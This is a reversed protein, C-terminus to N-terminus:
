SHTGAVRLQMATDIDDEDPHDKCFLDSLTWALRLVRVYGRLSIQARDLARDLPRLCEPPLRLEASLLSLPVQSNLSLGYPRLREAQLQRAQQVRQAVEASTEGPEARALAASRPREVLVQLDIRDLLPGSLRSM